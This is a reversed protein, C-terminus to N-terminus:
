EEEEHQNRAPKSSIRLCKTTHPPPDDAPLETVIFARARLEAPYLSRRRLTLDPTRIEGPAGYWEGICQLHLIPRRRMTAM